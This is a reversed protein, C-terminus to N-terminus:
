SGELSVLIRVNGDKNIRKKYAPKNYFLITEKKVNMEDAIEKATGIALLTEGKYLAYEKSM